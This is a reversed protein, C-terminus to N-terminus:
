KGFYQKVQPRTLYYLIAADILLGVVGYPLSLLGGLLGLVAFILSATWSWGRGKWLGYGIGLAILGLVLFVVGIVGGLAAVLGGYTAVALTAAFIGVFVWTLIAGLILLGGGLMDLFALITIGAPRERTMQMPM